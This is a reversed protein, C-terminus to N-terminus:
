QIKSVKMIFFKGCWSCFHKEDYEPHMRHKHALARSVTEFVDSCFECKIQKGEYNTKEPSNEREPLVKNKNKQM